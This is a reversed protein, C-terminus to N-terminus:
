SLFFIEYAKDNGTIGTLTGYTEDDVLDALDHCLFGVEIILDDSDIVTRGVLHQVNQGADRGKVGAAAVVGKYAPTVVRGPVIDDKNIIVLLAGRVTEPVKEIGKYVAIVIDRNGAVAFLGLGAELVEAGSDVVADGCPKQAFVGAQFEGVEGHHFLEDLVFHDFVGIGIGIEGTEHEAGCAADDIYVHLLAHAGDADAM